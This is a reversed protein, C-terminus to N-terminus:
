GQGKQVDCARGQRRPGCSGQCRDIGTSGPARHGPSGQAGNTGNTGNTGTVGAPGSNAPVGTGTLSISETGVANNAGFRLTATQSGDAVATFQVGIWCAEGADLTRGDCQEDGAPITFDAADAGTVQAEGTFTLPDQGSSQLQLWSVPGPLGTTQSGFSLSPPGSIGPAGFIWAAGASGNDHFGGILATTATASLAVYSGFTGKGIEGTGEGVCSGTCDGVLKPGRQSWTGEASRTFLWAAGASINDVYAGILATNGDASLAVSSSFAGEGIEGAGEHACDGACDAVLKAGQQTWVGEASRTFVWAAGEIHNDEYAGILATDGDASLAVNGGFSAGGFLGNAEGTGEHACDSTCDGVLKSGQQSWAGGSRVFVWVAGENDNDGSGGVLATDGDASLAVGNGLAGGETEGTGEHPCVGECDGVLKTGQTSWVGDSRVFVWGAGAFEEEAPAGILATNGDSSLAVNRGFVGEGSLKPGQQTWVGNSRTFVWAAGASGNDSPAGILATNGDSSLAVSEGFGGNGIEGTGENSCSSTCDGVLAAQQVWVGESRTFVWVSGPFANGNQLHDGVLATNGDGSLAVSWGLEDNGTEGTGEHECSSTCNGVLKEGQQIFPDIRLPYTAGRDDVRLLLSRGHLVLMAPLRRGAADTAVLGGYRASVRGSASLFRVESGVLEPRLSGGLRLVATVPGSAGAPRRSLAFGQEIGLPGAAYWERLGGGAAYTVRNAHASSSMPGTVSFHGGRGVGALALSFSGGASRVSVAGHSLNADLGDGEFRYGDAYATAAFVARGSALAGSIVSQAQLGLSRLRTIAAAGSQETRGVAPSLEARRTFEPQRLSAVSFAVVLLVCALALLLGHRRWRRRAADGGVTPFGQVLVESGM